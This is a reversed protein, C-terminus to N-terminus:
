NYSIFLTWLWVFLQYCIYFIENGEKQNKTQRNSIAGYIGLYISCVM